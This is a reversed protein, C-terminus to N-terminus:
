EARNATHHIIFIVYLIYTKILTDAYLKLEILRICSFFLLLFFLIHTNPLRVTLCLSFSHFIFYYYYDVIWLCFRKSLTWSVNNDNTDCHLTLLKIWVLFFWVSGWVKFINFRFDFLFVCCITYFLIKTQKEFWHINKNYMKILVSTKRTYILWLLM